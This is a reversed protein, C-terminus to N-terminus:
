MMRKEKRRMSLAPARVRARGWGFVIVAETVVLRKGAGICLLPFM